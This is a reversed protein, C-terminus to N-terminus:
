SYVKEVAAQFKLMEEQTGITVRVKTPWAPWVRGIYVKQDAMGRAFDAGPRHVEMMFFNSESPVYSIGRKELFAFTNDRIQKNLARREAILTKVKMSATAAAIGTVPLMGSGYPRIKELLDPRAIAAGARLGAMGYLKSFTRLVVVDKDQAVLDSCPKASDSFHIYAEDVLVIADKKKHALLYEIDKRATVTGSPNNPNCVYYLGAEPDTKIMAEVDHSFDPRLPVRHLKAGIFTATGGGYGPDGMVMSATPSAFACITRHLPDSSGAFPAIYEEKVGEIAAMTSVFEGAEGFPSYRWGWKAVKHIAEVAEPAPGMPNENSTIRVADPPINRRGRMMRREAQQAMAFENYFPLSAGATLVGAIRGIQRRSFGRNLFSDIQEHSLSM